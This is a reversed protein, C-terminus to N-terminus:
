NARADDGEKKNKYFNVIASTGATTTTAAKAVSRRPPRPQTLRKKTTEEGRVARLQERLAAVRRRRYRQLERAAGADFFGVPLICSAEGLHKGLRDFVQVPAHLDEPNFRVVLNQKVYRALFPAGYINQPCDAAGGAALTLTGDARVKRSEAALLLLMEREATLQILRDSDYNEAFVEDYSKGNATHSRRAPRANFESLFEKLAHKFVSEAVVADGYNDPKAQPNRGAYAGAFSRDFDDFDRFVREVPKAQGWGRARGNAARVISSFHAQVGLLEFIGPLEEEVIRFRRRGPAGGTLWKNSAARTNDIVLHRPVGVQRCLDAFSLRLMEKNESQDSRYALIKRSRICQWAWTVPRYVEGDASVVFVNHKYGDGSVAEGATLDDVSRVQVGMRARVASEGKRAFVRLDGPCEEALRRRFTAISPLKVGSGRAGRRQAARYCAALTPQELRLFDAKFSSWVAPPITRSRRAGPRAADKLAAAWDARDVGRVESMWNRLSGVSVGWRQALARLRATKDSNISLAQAVLASKDLANMTRRGSRVRMRRTLSFIIIRRCNRRNRWPATGTAGIRWIRKKMKQRRDCYKMAALRRADDSESRNCGEELRKGTGFKRIDEIIATIGQEAENLLVFYHHFQKDFRNAIEEAVSSGLLKANEKALNEKQQILIKIDEKDRQRAKELLAIRPNQEESFALRIQRTSMKVVADSKFGRVKRGVALENIESEDLRVLEVCKSWGLNEAFARAYRSKFKGAIRIYENARQKEFGVAECAAVFDGPETDRRIRGLVEGAALRVGVDIKGATDAFVLGAVISRIGAEAGSKAAVAFQRRVQAIIVDADPLSSSADGNKAVVSSPKEKTM